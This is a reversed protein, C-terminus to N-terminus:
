KPIQNTLVTCISLFQFSNHILQCSNKLWLILPKFKGRRSRQPTGLEMRVMFESGAGFRGFGAKRGFGDGV